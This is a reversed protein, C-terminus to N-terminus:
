RRSLLALAALALLLSSLWVVVLGASALASPRGGTAADAIQEMAAAMTAPRDHSRESVATRAELFSERLRAASRLVRWRFPITIAMLYAFLGLVIDRTLAALAGMALVACTQFGVDLWARRAFLVHQFLRAGDLGSLPLLNFGNILVLVFAGRRAIPSLEAARLALAFGLVIGPVPGLLLVVGEKWAAAGARRGAVAAGFFPIFFMRVDRYGLIRMGLFHGLEHFVLIGILVALDSFSRNLTQQAVLFLALSGILVLGANLRKPHRLRDLAARYAPELRDFDAGFRSDTDISVAPSVSDV